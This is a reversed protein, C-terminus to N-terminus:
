FVGTDLWKLGREIFLVYIDFKGFAGKYNSYKIRKKSDGLPGLKGRLVGGWPPNGVVYNFRMSNIESYEKTRKVAEKLQANALEEQYERLSPELADHTVVKLRLTYNPYYDKV